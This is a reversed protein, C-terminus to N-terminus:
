LACAVNCLRTAAPKRSTGDAFLTQVFFAEPFLSAHTPAHAEPCAVLSPSTLILYLHEIAQQKDNLNINNANAEASTAIQQLQQQLQHQDCKSDSACAKWKLKQVLALVLNSAFRTSITVDETSYGRPRRHLIGSAACPVVFYAISLM